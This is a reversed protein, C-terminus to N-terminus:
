FIYPNAAKFGHVKAKANFKPPSWPQEQQGNLHSALWMAQSRIPMIFAYVKENPLQAVDGIAYIHEDNTQLFQNVRIGRGTDLEAAVALDTRPKFGCSVIIADFLQPEQQNQVKVSFQEGQKQFASVAQEFLVTLGKSRLLQLLTESDEAVLQREMLRDMAHYITVQDGALAIDSAIECGILGGGVIAWNPQKNRDLIKQRLRRLQKLDTLSNFVYFCDSFSVFPPPIFAASGTAIVLKDYHLSAEGSLELLRRERDISKVEAGTIMKIQNKEIDAISKLVITQEINEKSFGHSLIPRSYYGSSEQSIVTIL